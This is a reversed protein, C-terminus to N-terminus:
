FFVLPEDEIYNPETSKYWKYNMEIEHSIGKLCTGITLKKKYYHIEAVM